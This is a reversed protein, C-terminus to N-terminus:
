VKELFFDVSFKFLTVYFSFVISTEHYKKACLWNVVKAMYGKYNKDYLILYKKREEHLKEEGLLNLSKKVASM